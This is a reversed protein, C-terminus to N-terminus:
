GLHGIGLLKHGLANRAFSIFFAGYLALSVLCNFWVWLRCRFPFHLWLSWLQSVPIQNMKFSNSYNEWEPYENDIDKYWYKNVHSSAHSVFACLFEWMFYDALKATALWMAAVSSIPECNEYTERLAEPPFVAAKQLLLKVYLRCYFVLQSVYLSQIPRSSLMFRKLVAPIM